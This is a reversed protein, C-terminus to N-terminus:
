WYATLSLMTVSTVIQNQPSATAESVYNVPANTAFISWKVLETPKGYNLLEDRVATKLCPLSVMAMKIQRNFIMEFYHM